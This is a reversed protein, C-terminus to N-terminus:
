HGELQRVQEQLRNTLRDSQRRADAAMENARDMMAQTENDVPVPPVTTNIARLEPSQTYNCELLVRNFDPDEPTTFMSNEVHYVRGEKWVWQRFGGFGGFENRANVSGCAIRRTENYYDSNFRASDPDRLERKVAEQVSSKFGNGCGAVLMAFTLASIGRHFRRM